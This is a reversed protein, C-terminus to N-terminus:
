PAGSPAVPEASRGQGAAAHEARFRQKGVAFEDGEDLILWDVSRGGVTTRHRQGGIHRLMLKGERAWILAHQPAVDDSRPVRVDCDPAWGIRLPVTGFEFAQGGAAGDIAVIRGRSLDPGDDAELAAPPPLPEDSQRGANRERERQRRAERARRAFFLVAAGAVLALV